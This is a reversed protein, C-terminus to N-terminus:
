STRNEEENPAGQTTERKAKRGIGSVGRNKYRRVWQHLQGDNIGASFATEKVSKGALVQAVLEYRQDATWEKNQNKHRLAEPGCSNEIRTWSRIMRHFNEEQIGEPTEPWKGLRYLEVCMRKYKYSCKM